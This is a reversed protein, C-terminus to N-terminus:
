QCHMGCPYLMVCHSVALAVTGAVLMLLTVRFALLVVLPAPLKLAFTMSVFVVLGAMSPLRVTVVVSVPLPLLVWFSFGAAMAPMTTPPTPSSASTASATAPTIIRRRRRCCSVAAETIVDRQLEVIIPLLMAAPLVGPELARRPPPRRTIGVLGPPPRALVAATGATCPLLQSEQLLMGANHAAEAHQLAETCGNAGWWMLLVQM